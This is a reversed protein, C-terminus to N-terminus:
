ISDKISILTDNIFYRIDYHCISGDYSSIYILLVLSTPQGKTTDYNQPFCLLFETGAGNATDKAHLLQNNYCFINSLIFLLIIFIITYFLRM